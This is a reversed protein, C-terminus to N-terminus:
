VELWPQFSHVAQSIPSFGDVMPFSKIASGWLYRTILHCLTHLYDGPIVMGNPPHFMYFIKFGGVM